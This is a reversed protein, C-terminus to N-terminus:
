PKLYRHKHTKFEYEATAFVLGDYEDKLDNLHKDRDEANDFTFFQKENYKKLILLYKM